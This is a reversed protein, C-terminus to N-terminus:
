VIGSPKSHASRERMVRMSSTMVLLGRKLRVSAISRCASTVLGSARRKTATSAPNALSSGASAAAIVSSRLQSPRTPASDGAAASYSTQSRRCRGSAMTAASTAGAARASKPRGVGSPMTSVSSPRFSRSALAARAGSNRAVSPAAHRSAWVLSPGSAVSHRQPVSCLASKTGASVMAPRSASRRTPGSGSSPSPEVTIAAVGRASKRRLAPAETRM